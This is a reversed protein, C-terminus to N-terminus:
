PQVIDAELFHALEPAAEAIVTDTVRDILEPDTEASSLIERLRRNIQAVAETRDSLRGAAGNLGGAPIAGVDKLLAVAGMMSDFSPDLDAPSSGADAGEGIEVVRRSAALVAGSLEEGSQRDLPPAEARRKARIRRVQRKTLGHREAIEGPSADQARALVIELDRSEREKRNLKRARKPSGNTGRGPGGAEGAKWRPLQPKARPSIIAGLSLADQRFVDAVHESNVEEAFAERRGAKRLMANFSRTVQILAKGLGRRRGSKQSVLAALLDAGENFEAEMRGMETPNAFDRVIACVREFDLRLRGLLEEARQRTPELQRSPARMVLHARDLCIEHGRQVLRHATGKSVGLVEGIVRYNDGLERLHLASRALVDPDPEM